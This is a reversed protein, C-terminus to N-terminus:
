LAPRLGLDTSEGHAWSTRGESTLSWVQRGGMVFAEGDHIVLGTEEDIGIVSTNPPVSAVITDTMGPRFSDFRDFHPIVCLDDFVGLASVLGQRRPSATVSGMMMAGASCGALAAGKRWAEVVAAWVLTNRMTEIVYSPNGGSFYVIAADGIQAANAPDDAGIRDIITLPIAELGLREFHDVGRSLWSGVSTPGEQGAATPIIIARASHGAVRELLAGDIVDSCAMFEGSGVLGIPGPAAPRM